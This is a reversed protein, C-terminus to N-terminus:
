IEIEGIHLITPELTPYKRYRASGEHRRQVTKSSGCILDTGSEM